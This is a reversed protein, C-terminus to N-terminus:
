WDSQFSTDISTDTVRRGKKMNTINVAETGKVHQIDDDDGKDLIVPDEAAISVGGDEM